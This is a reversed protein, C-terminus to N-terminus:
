RIYGWERLTRSLDPLDTSAGSAVAGQYNQRWLRLGAEVGNAPSRHFPDNAVLLERRRAPDVEAGLLALPLQLPGVATLPRDCGETDVRFPADAPSTAVYYRGGYRDFAVSLRRGSPDLSVSAIRDLGHVTSSPGYDVIRGRSVEITVRCPPLGSPELVLAEGPLRDSIWARLERRLPELLQPQTLETVVPSGGVRLEMQHDVPRGELTQRHACESHWFLFQRDGRTLSESCYAYSVLARDARPAASGGLGPLAVGDLRSVAKLGMAGLLTPVIDLTSVPSDWRSPAVGPGAVVLPVHLENPHCTKGHGEDLRGGLADGFRAILLPLTDHFSEGHDATLVQLTRDGLGYAALADVLAEIAEDAHRVRAEYACRARDIGALRACGGAEFLRAPTASGQHPTSVYYLVFAREDHYRAMLAPLARITDVTGMDREGRNSARAFAPTGKFYGNNGLFVTHYGAEQAFHTVMMSARAYHWRLPPRGLNRWPQAFPDVRMLDRGSLMPVVSAMTHCGPSIARTYSRGRSALRSLVPAKAMSDTRLTDVITVVLWRPRPDSGPPEPALVRAEGVAVTGDVAELCLRAPGAPLPRDVQAEASLTRPESATVTWAEAAGSPPERRVRLQVPGDSTAAPEFRLRAGAAISLQPSCWSEGARLVIAPMAEFDSKSGDAVRTLLRASAGRDDKVLWPLESLLFPGDTSPRGSPASRVLVGEGDDFARQLDYLRRLLPVRLAAPPPAKAVVPVNATEAANGRHPFLVLLAAWLFRAGKSRNEVTAFYAV